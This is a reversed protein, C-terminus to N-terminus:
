MTNTLTTNNTVLNSSKKKRHSVFLIVLFYGAELIRYIMHRTVFFNVSTYKLGVAFLLVFLVIYGLAAASIIRTRQTIFKIRRKKNERTGIEISNLIKFEIKKGVVLFAVGVFVMMVTLLINVKYRLFNKDTTIGVLLAVYTAANVLILTGRLANTWKKSNKMFSSSFLISGWMGIVITYASFNWMLPIYYILNMAFTNDYQALLLASRTLRLLCACFLLAYSLKYLLNGKHHKGPFGTLQYWTEVV